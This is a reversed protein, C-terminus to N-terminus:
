ARPRPDMAVDHEIRAYWADEDLGGQEVWTEDSM